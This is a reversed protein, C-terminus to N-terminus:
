DAIALSLCGRGASIGLRSPSDCGAANLEIVHLWALSTKIEVISGDPTIKLSHV